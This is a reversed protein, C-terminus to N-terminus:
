KLEIETIIPFHDSGLLDDHVTWNCKVGLAPHTLDIASFKNTHIDHREDSSNNLITLNNNTM